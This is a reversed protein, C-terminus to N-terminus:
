IKEAPIDLELGLGDTIRNTCNVLAVLCTLDVRQEETFHPKLAEAEAAAGHTPPHTLKEAFRLALREKETFPAAEPNKLAQWDEPTM